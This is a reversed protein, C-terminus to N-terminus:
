KGRKFYLISVAGAIAPTAVNVMWLATSAMLVGTLQDTFKSFFFICISGRIGIEGLAFSPITTIFLFSIM